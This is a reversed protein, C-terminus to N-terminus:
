GAHSVGLIDLVFVMVDDPEHGMQALGEAGYGESPAVVSLVQSGVKQGVLADRFGPIVGDTTFDTPAGRTWSADFEKGTRWIVGRYHVYVRDGDAVTEGDGEILTHVSSKSPQEGDPITITPEGNEALAVTPMGAPADQPTGEAKSLLESEDLAPASAGLVDFVLLVSSEANLGEVGSTTPDEWIATAPVASAIRADTTGCALPNGIWAELVEPDIALQVKQSMLSEGTESSFLSIVTNISDGEEIDRGEGKDIVTVEQKEVSVPGELDLTLEGGHDGSVTVADSAKGSAVCEFGTTTPTLDTAAGSGGSCATLTLAAVAVAPLVVRNRTM